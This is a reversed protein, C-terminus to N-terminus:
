DTAPMDQSPPCCCMCTKTWMRCLFGEPKPVCIVLRLVAAYILQLGSQHVSIWLATAPMNHDVVAACIIQLGCEACFDM